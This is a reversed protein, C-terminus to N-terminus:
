VFNLLRILAEKIPSCFLRTLQLYGTLNVVCVAQVSTCCNYNNNNNLTKNVELWLQKSSLNVRLGRQLLTRSNPINKNDEFEWKAAM